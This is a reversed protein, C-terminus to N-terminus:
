DTDTVAEHTVKTKILSDVTYTDIVQTISLGSKISGINEAMEEFSADAATEVGKGTIAAAVKEKGDSVSKKIEDMVVSLQLLIDKNTEEDEATDAECGPLVKGNTLETNYENTINGDEDIKKICVVFSVVGELKCAGAGILWSFTINEEDAAMDGVIYVNKEENENIYNISINYESLDEDQYYRPMNFYLRKVNADGRVGLIRDVGSMTIKRLDHRIECAM